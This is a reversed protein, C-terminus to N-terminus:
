AATSRLSLASVRNRTRGGDFPQFSVGLGITWFDDRNLFENEIRTYGGSLAVQPRTAAQASAAQAALAAAASELRRPEAREAVALATLAAVSNNDVRADVGPLDTDLDTPADLPR